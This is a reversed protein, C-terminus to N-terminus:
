AWTCFMDEERIQFYYDFHHYSPPTAMKPLVLGMDEEEALNNYKYLSNNYINNTAFICVNICVYM